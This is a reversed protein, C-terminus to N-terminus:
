LIILYEESDFSDKFIENKKNKKNADSITIAFIQVKTKEELYNQLEHLEVPRNSKATTPWM